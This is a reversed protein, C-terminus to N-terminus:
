SAQIEIKRVQAEAAKPMTLHLIGNQVQASINEVDVSKPLKLSRSFESRAISQLWYRREEGEEKHESLAKGSVTLQGDEVSIDLDEARLGPVSLELVLKDDTEYLDAPYSNAASTVESFMRDMDRFLNSNFNVMRQPRTQTRVLTM